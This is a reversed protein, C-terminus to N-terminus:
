RFGGALARLAFGMPPLDLRRDSLVYGSKEIRTLYLKTLTASAKLYGGVSGAAALLARARGAVAGAAVGHPLFNEKYPAARLLGTLGYAASVAQLTEEAAERNLVKLVLRNLPTVSATAYEELEALSALPRGQLDTERANIVDQFWVQPLDHARVAPALAALVEHQLINGAYLAALADRWWQLRILGLTPESVVERTKAIEHNFAFLAWLADRRASPVTMGLLFRDRDYKRVLEACYSM